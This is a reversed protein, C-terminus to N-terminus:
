SNYKNLNTFMAFTRKKEKKSNILSIESVDFVTYKVSNFIFNKKKVFKYKRFFIEKFYNLIILRSVNKGIEILKKNKFKHFFGPLFSFLQDLFKKSSQLISYLIKKNNKFRDFIFIKVNILRYVFIPSKTSFLQNQFAKLNRLIGKNKKFIFFLDQVFNIKETNFFIKSTQRSFLNKSHIQKNESLNMINKYFVSTSFLKKEVKGFISYIKTAYKNKRYFKSKLFFELFLDSIKKLDCNKTEFFIKYMYFLYLGTIELSSNLIFHVLNKLSELNIVRFKKVNFSHNLCKLFIIQSKRPFYKQFLLFIDRFFIEPEKIEKKFIFHNRKFSFSFFQDCIKRNPGLIFELEEIHFHLPNKSKLLYSFKTKCNKLFYIQKKQLVEIHNFKELLILFETLLKKFGNCSKFSSFVNFFFKKRFLFLLNKLVVPKNFFHRIFGLFVPRRQNKINLTGLILLKKKIIYYERSRIKKNNTAKFMDFLHNRIVNLLWSKSYIFRILFRLENNWANKKKQVFFFTNIFIVTLTLYCKRCSLFFLNPITHGNTQKLIFTKSIKLWPCNKELYCLNFFILKKFNCVLIKKKLLLHVFRDFFSIKMSFFVTRIKTFIDRKKRNSWFELNFQYYLVTLFFLLYGNVSILMESKKFCTYNRFLNFLFIKTPIKIKNKKFQKIFISTLSQFIKDQGKKFAIKQLIKKIYFIGYKDKPFSSYFKRLIVQDSYRKVLIKSNFNNSSNLNEFILNRFHFNKKKYIATSDDLSMKSSQNFLSFILISEFILNLFIKYIYKKKLFNRNIKLLFFLFFKFDLNLYKQEFYLCNKASKEFLYCFGKPIKKNLFLFFLKIMEIKFYKKSINNKKNKLIMIRKALLIKKNKDLFIESFITKEPFYFTFSRKNIFFFNEIFFNKKILVNTYELSNVFYYISNLMKNKIYIKKSSQPDWFNKKEILKTKLYIIIHNSNCNKKVYSRDLYSEILIESIFFSM